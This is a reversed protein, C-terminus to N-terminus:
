RKRRLAFRGCRRHWSTAPQTSPASCNALKMPAGARTQGPPSIAAPWTASHRKAEGIGMLLSRSFLYNGAAAVGGSFLFVALLVWLDDRLGAATLAEVQEQERTSLSVVDDIAKRHEAYQVELQKLSARVAPADGANVAPLFQQDVIEFFRISAHHADNLFRTKIGEPLQQELWFRHRTDYDTRLQRLRAFLTEREALRDPDSLQLTTLYSEIIYNPPPLIDAVLDKYLVIRQYNPGGVKTESITHSTWAGFLLFGGALAIAVLLVQTRLSFRTM